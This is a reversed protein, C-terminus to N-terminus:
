FLFHYRGLPIILADIPRQGFHFIQILDTLRLDFVFLYFLDRGFRCGEM